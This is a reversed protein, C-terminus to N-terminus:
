KFEYIEKKIEHKEEIEDEDLMMDLFRSVKLVSEKAISIDDVLDRVIQEDSFLEIKSKEEIKVYQENLINIAVEISNEIEEIRDSLEINKRLSIFLALAILLFVILLFITFFIM